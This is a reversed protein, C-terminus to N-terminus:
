TLSCLYEMYDDFCAFDFYYQMYFKSVGFRALTINLAATHDKTERCSKALLAMADASWIWVGWADGILDPSKDVIHTGCLIGFRGTKKTFFVGATVDHGTDHQFVDLPFVTDPMAFYYRDAKKNEGISAIFEWLGAFPRATLHVGGVNEIVRWHENVKDQRTAICIRSAGGEQMAKICRSLGCEDASIPLLEKALGKFRYASGGAPILGVIETM